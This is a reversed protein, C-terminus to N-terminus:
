SALWDHTKTNSYFPKIVCNTNLYGIRVRPIAQVSFHNNNNAIWYSTMARALMATWGHFLALAPILNAANFDRSFSM